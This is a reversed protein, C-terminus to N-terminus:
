QAPRMQSLPAFDLRQRRMDWMLPRDCSIMDGHSQANKQGCLPGGVTLWLVAGSGGNEMHMGFAGHQFVLRGVGAPDGLYVLVQSGGSGSFLSAAGQCDFGGEDIAFDPIGDGNLDASQALHPSQGPKGGAERCSAAMEKAHQAVAQPIPGAAVAPQNLFGLAVFLALCRKV